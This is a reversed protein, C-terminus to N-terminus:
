KRSEPKEGKAVKVEGSCALEAPRILQFKVNGKRRYSTRTRKEKYANKAM